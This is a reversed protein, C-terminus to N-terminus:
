VVLCPASGPWCRAARSLLRALVLLGVSHMDWGRRRRSAGWPSGCDGECTQIVHDRVIFLHCSGPLMRVPSTGHTYFPVTPRPASGAKM